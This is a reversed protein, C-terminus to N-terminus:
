HFIEAQKGRRDSDYMVKLTLKRAFLYLDKKIEFRNPLSNPCFSLGLQLLEHEITSLPYSLLNIVELKCENATLNKNDHNGIVSTNM